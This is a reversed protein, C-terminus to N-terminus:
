LLAPPYFLNVLAQIRTLPSSEWGDRFTLTETEELDPPRGLPNVSRQGARLQVELGGQRHRLFDNKYMWLKWPSWDGLEYEFRLACAAGAVPLLAEASWM